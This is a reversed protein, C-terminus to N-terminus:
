IDRAPGRACDATCYERGAVIWLGPDLVMEFCDDAACTELLFIRRPKTLGLAHLVEPSPRRSVPARVIM